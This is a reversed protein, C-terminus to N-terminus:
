LGLDKMIQNIEEKSAQQKTGGRRNTLPTGFASLGKARAEAMRKEHILEKGEWALDRIATMATYWGDDDDLDKLTQFLELVERIKGLIESKTM